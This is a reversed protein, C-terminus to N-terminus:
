KKLYNILNKLIEKGKIKIYFKMNYKIKLLLKAGLVTVM